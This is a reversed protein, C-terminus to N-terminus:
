SGLAALQVQQLHAVVVRGQAAAQTQNALVVLFKLEPEMVVGLLELELLILHRKRRQRKAQVVVEALTFFKNVLLLLAFVRVVM